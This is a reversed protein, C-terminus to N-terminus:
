NRLPTSFKWETSPLPGQKGKDRWYTVEAESEHEGVKTVVLRASVHPQTVKFRMKILVGEAAGVDLKVHQTVEDRAPNQSSTRMSLEGLTKINAEISSMHLYKEFGLPLQPAGDVPFAEDGERLLFMGHPEMRPEDRSRVSSCFELIDETAILYHRKGWRIAVYEETKYLRNHNALGWAVRIHGNTEQLSGYNQDYLGLCGHWTMVAGNAPALYLRINASRGDGEFYSGAWHPHSPSDLEHVIKSIQQSVLDDVPDRDTTNQTVPTPAHPSTRGDCSVQALLLASATIALFPRRLM